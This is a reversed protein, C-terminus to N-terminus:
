INLSKMIDLNKKHLCSTFMNKFSPCPPQYSTLFRPLHFLYLSKIHELLNNTLKKLDIGAVLFHNFM